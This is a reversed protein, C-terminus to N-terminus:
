LLSYNYCWFIVIDVSFFVSVFNVIHPGQDCTCFRIGKTGVRECSYRLSDVERKTLWLETGQLWIHILVCKYVIWMFLANTVVSVFTPSIWGWLFEEVLMHITKMMYFGCDLCNPQTSIHLIHHQGESVITHDSTESSNPQMALEALSRVNSTTVNNLPNCFVVKNTLKSVKQLM